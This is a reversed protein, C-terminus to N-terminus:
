IQVMRKFIIQQVELQFRCKLNCIRKLFVIEDLRGHWWYGKEKIEDFLDKRTVASIQNDM